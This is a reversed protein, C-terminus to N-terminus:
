VGGNMRASSQLAKADVILCRSRGTLWLADYMGSGTVQKTCGYGDLIDEIEMGVVPVGTHSINSPNGPM